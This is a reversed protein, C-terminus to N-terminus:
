YEREDFSEEDDVVVEQERHHGLPPALCYPTNNLLLIPLRIYRLLIAPPRKARADSNMQVSHLQKPLLGVFCGVVSVVDRLPHISCTM